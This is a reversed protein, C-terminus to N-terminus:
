VQIEKIKTHIDLQSLHQINTVQMDIQTLWQM